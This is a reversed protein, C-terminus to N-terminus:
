EVSMMLNYLEETREDNNYRELLPKFTISLALTTNVGSLGELDQYQKHVEDFHNKAGEWDLKDLTMKVEKYTFHKLALKGEQSGELHTGDESSLIDAIRRLCQILKKTNGDRTSNWYYCM